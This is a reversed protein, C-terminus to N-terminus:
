YRSILADVYAHDHLSLCISCEFVKIYTKFYIRISPDFFFSDNSSSLGIGENLAWRVYQSKGGYAELNNVLSLLLRVGHRQAEM